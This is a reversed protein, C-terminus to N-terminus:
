EDTASSSDSEGFFYEFWKVPNPKEQSELFAQYEADILAQNDVREPPLSVVTEGPLSYNLRNRAEEEIFLETQSYELSETLEENQSILTNLEERLDEQREGIQANEQWTRLFNYSMFLALGVSAWFLYRIHRRDDNENFNSASLLM